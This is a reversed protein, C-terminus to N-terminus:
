RRDPTEDFRSSYFKSIRELFTEYYDRDGPQPAPPATWLRIEADGKNDCEVVFTAYADFGVSGVGDRIALRRLHEVMGAAADPQKHKSISLERSANQRLPSIFTEAINVVTIGTAIADQCGQHVIEHSSSLEDYVRPKSKGHETMVSKAECSLLVDAFKGRRISRDLSPLQQVMGKRETDVPSGLSPLESADPPGLALDLTKSKGTSSWFFRQNIGYVIEDREAQEKLVRCRDILDQLVFTCLATSHAGSRPHYRYVHGFRRDIHIYSTMWKVFKEPALM